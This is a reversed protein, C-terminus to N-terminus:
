QCEEAKNIKSSLNQFKAGKCYGISDSFNRFLQSTQKKFRDPLAAHAAVKEAQLLYVSKIPGPRETAMVIVCILTFNTEYLTAHAISTVAPFHIM